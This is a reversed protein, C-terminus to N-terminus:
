HVLYEPTNLAVTVLRAPDGVDQKLVSVSRDSWSGIGLLYGVADIRDGSTTQAISSLDASKTLLTAAQMRADASATSLWAQGSPWGGVNPPYFPIQGLQRLIGLLKTAVTDDAVSVKLARVSGVLWELPDVVLSGEAAAFAPMTLMSTLLSTLDRGPGYAAHLTSLTAATPPTDSVLQGWWRTALYGPADPRALVADCYGAQDLNGTVGLFTKIGNDHLRPVLYTSNDARIKWGTLARAGERVDTETYGDGHGLAFLEMFERSLNENPATSTNEEGDLWDLMAADTLMALALSHFDGRGMRRLTQNQALLRGAVRVKSAATAFHNHWCFTLKEGFPQNVAVMRRLWWTTLQTLQGSIQQNRQQRQAATAGKPAAAIPGFTPAPTALAGPDTTPDASVVARVFAADGLTRAADVAAGTAGFGTRRVLRATAIWEASQTSV